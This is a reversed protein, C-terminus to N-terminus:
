IEGGLEKRIRETMKEAIRQVGYISPHVGDASLYRLDELIDIGSIYIVNPYKLEDVVLKLLVRWKEADRSEGFDDSVHYFPSIVFVPKKLNRGAVQNIMYNVRNRIKEKEWNLVNVGLELTAIDWKGKEGESAIYEAMEPELACSGAMGLNRADMNLNHALMSVWSHSMDMSNSGHTMSSGYALLTKQPCQEKRPPEVEGIIDCIRYRGQDFIVRVVECDWDMGSKESMMRLLSLNSSKKIIFDESVSGVNTHVEHDSWGGQIGGRYVHFRGSSVCHMRIVAQDGKIIFRLEVGTSNFAMQKDKKERAEHVYSPIRMWSVSGDDHYILEAANFIEVNKYIMNWEREAM